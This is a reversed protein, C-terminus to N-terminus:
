IPLVAEYDRFTPVLHRDLSGSDQILNDPPKSVGELHIGPYYRM